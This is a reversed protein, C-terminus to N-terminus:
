GREACQKEATEGSGKKPLACLSGALLFAFGLVPVLNFYNILYTCLLRVTVIGLENYILFRPISSVFAYGGFFVAMGLGLGSIVISETALNKNQPNLIGKSRCYLLNLPVIPALAILGVDSIASLLGARTESLLCVLLKYINLGLQFFCLILGLLLIVNVKKNQVKKMLVGRESDLIVGTKYATLLVQGASAFIEM